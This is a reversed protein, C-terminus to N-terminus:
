ILRPGPRPWEWGGEPPRTRGPLPGFDAIEPGVVGGGGGRGGGRGGQFLKFVSQRTSNAHEPKARLPAPGPAPRSSSTMCNNWLKKSVYAQRHIKSPQNSLNNWLRKSFYTTRHIKSPQNSLNNWLRKSVYTNRHINSPQNPLNNLIDCGVFEVPSSRM